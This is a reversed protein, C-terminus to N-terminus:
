REPSVVTKLVVPGTYLQFQRLETAKWRDMEQLGHPQWAFVSPM